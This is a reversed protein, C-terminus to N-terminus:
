KLLNAGGMDRAMLVSLASKRCDRAGEYDKTEEELLRARLEYYFAGRLEESVKELHARAEGWLHGNLAAEVVLLQAIDSEPTLDLLHLAMRYPELNDNMPALSLYTHGLFFDQSAQWAREIIKLSKSRKGVENLLTAYLCATPVFAPSFENSYSLIEIKEDRTLDPVQSRRYWLLAKLDNKRKRDEPSSPKIQDLILGAKEFQEERLYLDFLTYLVWPLTPYKKYFDEIFIKLQADDKEALALQSLGYLGLFEGEKQKRLKSFVRRAAELNNQRLYERAELCLGIAPSPFLAQLKHAKELTKDGDQGYFFIVGELLVRYGKKYKRLANVRMVRAPLKLFFQGSMYLVSVLISVLLMGAICVGLSTHIRYGQWEILADGPIQVVWIAFTAVLFIKLFFILFRIM